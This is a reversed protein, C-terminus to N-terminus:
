LFTGTYYLLIFVTRLILFFAFLFFINFFFFFFILMFCFVFIECFSLKKKLKDICANIKNPFTLIAAVSLSIKQWTLPKSGSGAFLYIM